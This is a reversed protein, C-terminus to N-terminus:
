KKISKSIDDVMENFTLGPKPKLEMNGKTAWRKEKIMVKEIIIEPESPVSRVTITPQTIGDVNYGTLAIMVDEYEPETDTVELTNIVFEVLERADMGKTRVGEGSLFDEVSEIFDTYSMTPNGEASPDVTAWTNDDWAELLKKARSM